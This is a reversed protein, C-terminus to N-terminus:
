LLLKYYKDDWLVYQLTASISCQLVVYTHTKIEIETVHYNYRKRLKLKKLVNADFQKSSVSLDLLIGYTTWTPLKGDLKSTWGHPLFNLMNALRITVKMLTNENERGRIGWLKILYFLCRIIILDNWNSVKQFNIYAEIVVELKIFIL